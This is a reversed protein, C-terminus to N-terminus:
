WKIEKKGVIKEIQLVDYKVKEILTNLLEIDNVHDLLYERNFRIYVASTISIRYLNVYLKNSLEVIINNTPVNCILLERQLMENITKRIGKM